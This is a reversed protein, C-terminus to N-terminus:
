SKNLLVTKRIYLNYIIETSMTPCLTYSYLNTSTIYIYVYLKKKALYTFIM